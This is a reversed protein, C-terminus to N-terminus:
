YAKTSVTTLAVREWSPHKVGKGLAKDREEGDLTIIRNGIFEQNRSRILQTKDIHFKTCPNYLIEVAM